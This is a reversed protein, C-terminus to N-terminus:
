MIEAFNRRCIFITYMSRGFFLLTSLKYWKRQSLNLNIASQLAMM